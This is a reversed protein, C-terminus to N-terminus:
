SCECKRHSREVLIGGASSHDIQRRHAQNGHELVDQMYEGFSDQAKGADHFIACAQVINSLLEIPCNKEALYRVNELHEKLTQVEGTDPNVHALPEGKHCNEKNM